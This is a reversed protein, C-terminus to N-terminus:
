RAGAGILGTSAPRKGPSRFRGGRQLERFPTAIVAGGPKSIAPNASRTKEYVFLGVGGCLPESREILRNRRGLVAFQRSSVWVEFRKGGRKGM